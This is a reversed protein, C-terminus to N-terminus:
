QGYFPLLPNQRVATITFLSLSTLVTLIISVRALITFGFRMMLRFLGFETATAILALLAVAVPNFDLWLKAPSSAIIEAFVIVLLYYLATGLLLGIIAGAAAELSKRVAGAYRSDYTVSM